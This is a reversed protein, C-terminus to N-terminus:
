LIKEGHKNRADNCFGGIAAEGGMREVTEADEPPGLHSNLDALIIPLTRAPLQGMMCHLAHLVADFVRESADSAMQVLLYAVIVALDLAFRKVRVGGLRGFM